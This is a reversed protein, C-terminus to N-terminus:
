QVNKGIFQASSGNCEYRYVITEGLQEDGRCESFRLEVNGSGIVKYQFFHKGGSGDVPDKPDQPETVYWDGIAEIVEDANTEWEWLFGTTPNEDLVINIYSSSDSLTNVTNEEYAVNVTNNPMEFRILYGCEPFYSADFDEVGDINFSYDKDADDMSFILYVNYGPVFMFDTRTTQFFKEDCHVKYKNIMGDKDMVQINLWRIIVVAMCALIFLILLIIMIKKKM